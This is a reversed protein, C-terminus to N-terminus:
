KKSSHWMSRTIERTRVEAKGLNKRQTGSTDKLISSPHVQRILLFIFILIHPENEEGWEEQRRGPGNGVEETPTSPTRVRGLSPSHLGAFWSFVAPCDQLIGIM